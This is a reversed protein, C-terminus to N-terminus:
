RRSASRCVGGQRGYVVTRKLRPRTRPLADIATMRLSADHGDCFEERALPLRLDDEHRCQLHVQDTCEEVLWLRRRLNGLLERQVLAGRSPHNANEDIGAVEFLPAIAHDHRRLGSREEVRGVIGEDAVAQEVDM